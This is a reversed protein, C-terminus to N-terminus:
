QLAEWFIIVGDFMDVGPHEERWFQRLKAWDAFGDGRAFADLSGYGWEALGFGPSIVGDGEEPDDDDFVLTIKSTGICRARGILFCQRTRLGCYLQLEEGQRVHRKRDARITQHKPVIQKPVYSTWAGEPQANLGLGIRIPNVFRRKFSYAVM